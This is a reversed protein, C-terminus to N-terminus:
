RSSFDAPRSTKELEAETKKWDDPKKKTAVPASPDGYFALINQRLEPSLKDFNHGAL